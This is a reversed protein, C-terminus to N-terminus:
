FDEVMWINSDQTWDLVALHRGDPSPVASTQMAGEQEWLVRADGKLDVYLLASGQPNASSTFFGKGDAAWCVGSLGNGVTVQMEQAAQSKLNFV